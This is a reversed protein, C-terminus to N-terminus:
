RSNEIGFNKILDEKKIIWTLESEEEKVKIHVYILPIGHRKALEYLAISPPKTLSTCDMILNYNRMLDPLIAKVKEEIPEIRNIEEDKLLHWYTVYRPAYDEWGAIAKYTNIVTISKFNFDKKNLFKEFFNKLLKIATETESETKDDRKGLLGLYAYPIESSDFIHCLPTKYKLEFVGRLKGEILKGENRTKNKRERTKGGVRIIIGEDELAKLDHNLIGKMKGDKGYGKGYRPGLIYELEAFSVARGAKALLELIDKRYMGKFASRYDEIEPLKEPIPM